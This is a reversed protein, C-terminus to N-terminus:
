IPYDDCNETVYEHITKATFLEHADFLSNWTAECATMALEWERSGKDGLMPRTHFKTLVLTDPEVFRGFLRAQPRPETVRMEWIEPPPPTLRKLFCHGYDDGYVRDGLTWRALAAEVAGRGSLISVASKSDLDKM